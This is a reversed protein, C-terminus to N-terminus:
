PAPSSRHSKAAAPLTAIPREPCAMIHGVTSSPHAGSHLRADITQAGHHPGHLGKQCFKECFSILTYRVVSCTLYQAIFHSIHSSYLSSFSLDNSTSLHKKICMLFLTLANWYLYICAHIVCKTHICESTCKTMISLPNQTFENSFFLKHCRFLVHSEETDLSLLPMQFLSFHTRCLAPHSISQECLDYSSLSDKNNVAWGHILSIVKEVQLLSYTKLNKFPAISTQVFQLSLLKLNRNWALM